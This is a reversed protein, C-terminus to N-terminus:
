EKKQIDNLMIANNQVEYTFKAKGQIHGDEYVFEGSKAKENVIIEVVYFTGGLVPDELAITTINERIYNEVLFTENIVTENQVIPAEAIEKLVIFDNTIVFIGIGILIIVFLFIKKM